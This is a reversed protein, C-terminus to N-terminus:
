FFVVLLHDHDGQFGLYTAIGAFASLGILMNLVFFVFVVCLTEPTPTPKLQVLLSEQQATPSREILSLLLRDTHLRVYRFHIPVADRSGGSPSSVLLVAAPSASLSGTPAVHKINPPLTYHPKGTSSADGCPMSVPEINPSTQRRQQRVPSVGDEAQCSDMSSHPPLSPSHGSSSTRELIVRKVRVHPISSIFADYVADMAISSRSTVLLRGKGLAPAVAGVLLKLLETGARGRKYDDLSDLVLVLPLEGQHGGVPEAILHTIQVHLQRTLLDPINRMAACIARAMGRDHVALQYTISHVIKVADHAPASGAQVFFGAALVKFESLQQCVRHALLTKSNGVPDTLWLISEDSSSQAWVYIDDVIEGHPEESSSDVVM